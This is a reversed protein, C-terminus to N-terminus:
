PPWQSGKKNIIPFKNRQLGQYFVDIARDIENTEKLEVISKNISKFLNKNKKHFILVADTELIIESTYEFNIKNPIYSVPYGSTTVILTCDARKLEIFRIRSESNNVFTVEQSKLLQDTMKVGRTIVYKKELSNKRCLKHIQLKALSKSTIFKTTDLEKLALGTRIVIQLDSEKFKIWARESPLIIPNLEYEPNKKSVLDLIVNVVDVTEQGRGVNINIEKALLQHPLLLLTILFLKNM